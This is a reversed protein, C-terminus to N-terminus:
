KFLLGGCAMLLGATVLMEDGLFWGLLHLSIGTSVMLASACLLVLPKRVRTEKLAAVLAIVAVAVWDCAVLLFVTRFALQFPPDLNSARTALLVEPYALLYHIVAAALLVVSGLVVLVQASRDRNM